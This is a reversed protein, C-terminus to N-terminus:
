NDNLSESKGTEESENLEKDGEVSDESEDSDDGSELRGIRGDSKARKEIYIRTYKNLGCFKLIIIELYIIYGIFDFFCAIFKLIRTGFTQIIANYLNPIFFDKDHDDTLSNIIEKYSSSALYHTPVHILSYLSEAILCHTPSLFKNILMLSFITFFHFICYSIIIIIELKVKKEESFYLFFHDYYYNGNYNSTCLVFGFEENEKIEKFYDNRCKINSSIILGIISLLIGIAGKFYLIKCPNIFKKDMLNKQMVIGYCFFLSFISYTLIFIIITVVRGKFLEIITKKIEEGNINKVINEIFLCSILCIGSVLVVIMISLKQHRFIKQKYEYKLICTIFIINLFFYDFIDNISYIITNLCEKCDILLCSLVIYWFANETINEYLDNYILSHKRNVVNNKNENENNIANKNNNELDNNKNEKNKNVDTNDNNEQTMKFFEVIKDMISKKKIEKGLEYQISNKKMKRKYERYECFIYLLLGFLFESIYGLLLCMIKHNSIKVHFSIKDANGFFIDDKVLKTITTVLIYYYFPTWRGIGIISGM